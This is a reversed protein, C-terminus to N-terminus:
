FGTGSHLFESREAAYLELQSEANGPIGSSTGSLFIFDDQIYLGWGMEWSFKPVYIVEVSVMHFLIATYKLRTICYLILSVWSPKQIKGAEQSTVGLGKSDAQYYYKSELPVKIM